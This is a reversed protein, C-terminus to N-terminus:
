TYTREEGTSGIVTVEYFTQEGSGSTLKMGALQKNSNM